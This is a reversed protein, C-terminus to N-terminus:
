SKEGDWCGLLDLLEEIWEFLRKGENARVEVVALFRSKHTRAQRSNVSYAIEFIETLVRQRDRKTQPFLGNDELEVIQELVEWGEEGLEDVIQSKDRLIIEVAENYPNTRPGPDDPLVEFLTAYGGEDDVSGTDDGFAVLHKSEERLKRRVANGVDADTHFGGNLVTLVIEPPTLTRLGYLCDVLANKIDERTERVISGDLARNPGRLGDRPFLGFPFIRRKTAEWCCGMLGDFSDAQDAEDAPLFWRFTLFNAKHPDDKLRRCVEARVSGLM